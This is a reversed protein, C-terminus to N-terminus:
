DEGPHYLDNQSQQSAPAQDLIATTRRQLYANRVFSYYDFSAEKAKEVTDLVSARFNVIELARAGLLYYWDVFFPTVALPSDALLGAGDRLTSPGLIPLMLYPGPSVGWWGLTQGFDEVHPHLGFSTAPDFFGAVGVTTNVAFRGVDVAAYEVKGQFLNNMTDIPFRLNAFFNGLSTQARKPVVFDWGKAAPALVYTDVHDNFWFVKRNFSELPDAEMPAPQETTPAPGSPLTVMQAAARTGLLGVALTALLPLTRMM